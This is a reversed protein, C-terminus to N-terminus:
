QGLLLVVAKRLAACRMSIFTHLEPFQLTRGNNNKTVASVGVGAERLLQVVERHGQSAAQHLPTPGVRGEGGLGGREEINVAGDAFLQRVEATRKQAAATWLAPSVVRGALTFPMGDM